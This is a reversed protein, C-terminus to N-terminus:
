SYWGLKNGRSGARRCSLGPVPWKPEERPCGPRECTSGGKGDSVIYRRFKNCSNSIADGQEGNGPTTFVDAPPAPVLTSLGDNIHVVVSLPAWPGKSNEYWGTDWHIPQRQGIEKTVQFYLRTQTANSGKKEDQIVYWPAQAPYAADLGVEVNVVLAYIEEWTIIDEMKPRWVFNGRERLITMLLPSCNLGPPHRRM